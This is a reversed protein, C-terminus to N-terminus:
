CRDGEQDLYGDIWRQTPGLDADDSRSDPDLFRPGPRLTYDDDDDVDDYIRLYRGTAIGADEARDFLALAEARQAETLYRPEPAEPMAHLEVYDRHHQTALKHARLAMWSDWGSAEAVLMAVQRMDAPDITRLRSIAEDVGLQHDLLTGLARGVDATCDPNLGVLPDPPAAEPQGRHEACARGVLELARRLSTAARLHDSSSTKTM